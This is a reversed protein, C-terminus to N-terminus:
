EQDNDFFSGELRTGYFPFVLVRRRFRGNTRVSEPREAGTTRKIVPYSSNTM